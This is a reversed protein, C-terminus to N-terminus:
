KDENVNGAVAECAKYIAERMKDIDHEAMGKARLEAIIEDATTGHILM